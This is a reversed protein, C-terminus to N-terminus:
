KDEKQQERRAAAWADQAADPLTEDTYIGRTYLEMTPVTLRRLVEPGFRDHGLARAFPAPMTLVALSILANLVAMGRLDSSPRMTGDAVGARFIAESEEVMTDVFTAAAPADNQIAGVMYQVYLMYEDPDSLYVGLLDQREAPRAAGHAREVLVHLVHEDCALRLREKSGFHHFVLAESVGSETAIARLKAKQYGDRAFHAIATNRIKAKATLDAASDVSLIRLRYETPSL